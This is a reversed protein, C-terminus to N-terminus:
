TTKTLWAIMSTWDVRMNRSHHTTRVMKSEVIICVYYMRIELFMFCTMHYSIVHYSVILHWVVVHLMHIYIYIYCKKGVAQYGWRQGEAGSVKEFNECRLRHGRWIRQITTAAQSKRFPHPSPSRSIGQFVDSFTHTLLTLMLQVM